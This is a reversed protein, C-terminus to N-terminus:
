RLSATNRPDPTKLGPAQCQRARSALTDIRLTDPTDLAEPTRPTQAPTKTDPGLRPQHGEGRGRGARGTRGSRRKGEEGKRASLNETCSSTILESVYLRSRGGEAGVQDPSESFAPAIPRANQRVGVAKAPGTGTKPGSGPGTRFQVPKRTAPDPHPKRGPLPGRRHPGLHRSHAGERNHHRTVLHRDSLARLGIGSVGYACRPRTSAISRVRVQRPRNPM